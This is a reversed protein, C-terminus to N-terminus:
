TSVTQAVSWLRQGNLTISVVPRGAGQLAKLLRQALSRKESESIHYDRLWLHYEGGQVTIHFNRAPFPTVAAPYRAAALEETRGRDTVSEAVRAHELGAQIAAGPPAGSMPHVNFPETGTAGGTPEATKASTITLSTTAGSTASALSDADPLESLFEAAVSGEPYLVAQVLVEMDVRAADEYSAPAQATVSSIGAAPLGDTRHGTGLFEGAVPPPISSGLLLSFAGNEPAPAPKRSEAFFGAATGMLNVKSM